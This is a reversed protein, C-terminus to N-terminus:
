NYKGREELEELIMERKGTWKIKQRRKKVWWPCNRFSM